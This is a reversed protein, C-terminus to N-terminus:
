KKKLLTMTEARGGRNMDFRLTDADIKMIKVFIEQKGDAVTYLKDGDTRWKGKQAQNGFGASYGGDAQFEFHVQSPVLDAPKGEITWNNGVWDGMVLPNQDNKKACALLSIAAAAALIISKKM